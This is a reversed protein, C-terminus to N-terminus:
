ATTTGIINIADQSIQNLVSILRSNADYARQYQLLTMAEQDLNVGSEQQRLNQAQAVSAQAVQQENTATQLQSGVSAAMNGYFETYSQGNIEDQSSQPTALQSLALPIGNAVEPPGPDIAALQGATVSPDVALTQAVNTPNTTDYTFLPVGPQAPPGDSVNGSSLLQNVRAAFQQALINLGGAQYANGLLSALVLMSRITFESSYGAIMVTGVLHLVLALVFAAVVRQGTAGLRGIM